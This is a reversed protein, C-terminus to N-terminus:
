EANICDVVLSIAMPILVAAFLSFGPLPRQSFFAWYSSAAALPLAAICFVSPIIVYWRFRRIILRIFFSIGLALATWLLPAMVLLIPDNLSSWSVARLAAVPIFWLLIFNAFDPTGSFARFLILLLYVAFPILVPLTVIDVFGYLWRSLGFGGPNVLNGLFFQFIATVSGLLLAWVGGAGGEGAVSRRFLYLLPVWLLCFFSM